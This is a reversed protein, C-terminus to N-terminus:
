EEETPEFPELKRTLDPLHITAVDWVLRPDIRYYDHVLRHRMGAVKSWPVDAIMAKSEETLRWAAEGVIQVEYAVGAQLLESQLFDEYSKGAIWRAVNRAANLMHGVRAKDEHQM